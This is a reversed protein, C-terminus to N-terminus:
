KKKSLEDMIYDTHNTKSIGIIQNMINMGDTATTEKVNPKFAKILCTICMQVKVPKLDRQLKEYDVLDLANVARFDNYFKRLNM